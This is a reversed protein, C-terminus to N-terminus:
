KLATGLFNLSRKSRHVTLQNLYEKCKNRLLVLKKDEQDVVKYRMKEYKDFKEELETVNFIHFLAENERYLYAQELPILAYPENSYDILEYFYAFQLVLSFVLIVALKM